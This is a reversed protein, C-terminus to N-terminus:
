RSIESGASDRVYFQLKPMEEQWRHPAQVMRRSHIARQNVNTEPMAVTM